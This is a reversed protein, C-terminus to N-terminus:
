EFYNEIKSKLIRVHKDITALAFQGNAGTKNDLEVIISNAHNEAHQRLPSFENKINNVRAQNFAMDISPHHEKPSLVRTTKHGVAILITNVLDDLHQSGNYQEIIRKKDLTLETFWEM